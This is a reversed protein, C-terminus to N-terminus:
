QKYKDTLTKQNFVHQLADEVFGTIWAEQPLHNRLALPLKIQVGKLDLVQSAIFGM